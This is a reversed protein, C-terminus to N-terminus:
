HIRIWSPYTSKGPMYSFFVCLFFCFFEGREGAMTRPDSSQSINFVRTQQVCNGKRGRLADALTGHVSFVPLIWNVRSPEEKWFLFLFFRIFVSCVVCSKIVSIILSDRHYLSIMSDTPLASINLILSLAINSNDHASM